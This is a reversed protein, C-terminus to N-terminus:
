SCLAGQILLLTPLHLEIRISWSLFPRLRRTIFASPALRISSPSSLFAEKRSGPDSSRSPLLSVFPRLCYILHLFYIGPVLYTVFVFLLLVVSVIFENPRTPTVHGTAVEKLDVATAKPFRRSM